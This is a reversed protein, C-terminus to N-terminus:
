TFLYAGTQIKYREGVKVLRNPRMTPPPAGCHICPKDFGKTVHVGDSCDPLKPDHADMGKPYNM